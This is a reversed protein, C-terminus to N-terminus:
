SVRELAPTASTAGAPLPEHRAGDTTMWQHTRCVRGLTAAPHLAAVLEAPRLGRPQTALEVLLRTGAPTIMRDGSPATVGPAPGDVALHLVYPRVDDTVDNGKRQRTMPLSEAALLRAVAEGVADVDLGLAEITWTCSTVAQQLSPASPAIAAAAQVDVGDPLLPTLLEPLGAPDTGAAAPRATAADDRFDVDLYEGLSECATPLALGFHVKPRPSFGETAAVPLQARRLAREWCRAVDRHSTFRVKGLKSFRFRVRM